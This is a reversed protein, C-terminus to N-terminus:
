CDVIVGGTGSRGTERTKEQSATNKEMRAHSATSYLCREGLPKADLYSLNKLIRELATLNLMCLIKRRKKIIEKAAAAAIAWVLEEGAM